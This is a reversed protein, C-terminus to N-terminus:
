YKNVVRLFDDKKSINKKLTNEITVNDFTINKLSVTFSNIYMDDVRQLKDSYTGVGKVLSFDLDTLTKNKDFDFVVTYTCNKTDCATGMYIDEMNFLNGFMKDSITATVKYGKDTEKFTLNSFDSIVLNTLSFNRDSVKYVADDVAYLNKYTILNQTYEKAKKNILAKADKAQENHIFSYVDAYNTNYKFSHSLYGDFSTKEKLTSFTGKGKINLLTSYSKNLVSTVDVGIQEDLEIDAKFGLQVDKIYKSILSTATAKTDEIETTEVDTSISNNTDIDFVNKAVTSEEKGCGVILLLLLTTVIVKKM